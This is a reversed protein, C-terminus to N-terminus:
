ATSLPFTFSVYVSADVIRLGKLGKVRLDPDVVGWDANYPSMSSTAVVHAGNQVGNRILDDMASYDNSGLSAIVNALEGVPTQLYSTWAPSSTFELATKVAERM